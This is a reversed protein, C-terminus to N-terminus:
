GKQFRKEFKLLLLSLLTVTHLVGINFFYKFDQLFYKRTQYNM